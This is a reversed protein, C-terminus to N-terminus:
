NVKSEEEEEEKRDQLDNFTIGSSASSTSDDDIVVDNKNHCRKVRKALGEQQQNKKVKKSKMHISCVVWEEMKVIFKIPLPYLVRYQHLIWSTKSGSRRPDNFEYFVFSKKFGIPHNCGTALILEHANVNNKITPMWYGSINTAHNMDSTKCFFYRKEKPDGPLCSPHQNFLNNHHHIANAPLPFSFVKPRLYHVIIEEDTPCFRYGIPMQVTVTTAATTDM